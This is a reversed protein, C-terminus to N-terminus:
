RLITTEELKRSEKQLINLYIKLLKMPRILQNLIILRIPRILQNLIIPRTLKIQVIQKILIIKQNHSQHNHNQNLSQHQSSQFKKLVNVTPVDKLFVQAEANVVHTLKVEKVIVFEKKGLLEQAMVYMVYM